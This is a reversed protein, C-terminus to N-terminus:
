MLIDIDLLINMQHGNADDCKSVWWLSDGVAMQIEKGDGYWVITNAGPGTGANADMLSNVYSWVVLGAPDYADVVGASTAITVSGATLGNPVLVLFTGNTNATASSISGRSTLIMQRIRIRQPWTAQLLVQKTTSASTTQMRDSLSYRDQIRKEVLM